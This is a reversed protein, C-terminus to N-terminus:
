DEHPHNRHYDRHEPWDDPRAPWDLRTCIAQWREVMEPVYLLPVYGLRLYTKIAPLRWDDTKLYLNRYGAALLRATVAACVTLGLGHGSHALDSAVWGLEGGFAHEKAPNHTAMATAVMRGSSREVAFFWGNPLIKAFWPRLTEDTWGEFGAMHMVQYFEAEDGPQYHRLTYGGAVTVPPPDDLRRRPWIMQLQYYPSESM